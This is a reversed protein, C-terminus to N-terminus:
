TASGASPILLTWTSHYLLRMRTPELVYVGRVYVAWVIIGGVWREPRFEMHWFGAPYQGVEYIHEGIM